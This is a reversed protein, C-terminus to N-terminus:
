ARTVNTAADAAQTAASFLPLTTALLTSLVIALMRSSM